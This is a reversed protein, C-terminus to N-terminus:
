AAEAQGAMAAAEQWVAEWRGVHQDIRQTRAWREACRRLQLRKWKSGVLESLTREWADDAVLLGGAKPTLPAYPGRGSALWAVGAAAYEKVKIDCRAAAHPLDALPALGLDFARVREALLPPALADHHTVREPDLGLGLGLAGDGITVVRVEPRRDLVRRLARALGLREADGAAARGEGAVWGVVIGEANRPTRAFHHDGLFSPVVEVPRDVEGTWRRALGETPTTVLHARRMLTLQEGFRREPDDGPEPWLRPDDDNDYTIGVGRARLEDVLTAVVADHRGVVHVVERDAFTEVPVSGPGDHCVLRVDHGKRRAAEAPLEGRLVAGAAGTHLVGLRM